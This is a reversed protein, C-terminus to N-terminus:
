GTVTSPSDTNTWTQRHADASWAACAAELVICAAAALRERTLGGTGEPPVHVFGVRRPSAATEALSRYLTANCVYDGPDDSLATPFGAQLLAAVIAEVPLTSALREPGTRRALGHRPAFGVADARDSACRRRATREIMMAAAGRSLGFHVVVDPSFRAYLRRLISWSRRYETPLVVAHFGAAGFTEPAAHVFERVLADTPNAPAGPFPGFGTVLLKPGRGV